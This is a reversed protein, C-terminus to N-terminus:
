SLRGNECRNRRVRSMENKEGSRSGKMGNLGVPGKSALLFTREDLAEEAEAEAFFPAFSEATLGLMAMDFAAGIAEIAWM